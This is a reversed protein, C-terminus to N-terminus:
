HSPPAIDNNALTVNQHWWDYMDFLTERLNDRHQNRSENWEISRLLRERYDAPYDALLRLIVEFAIQDNMETQFLVEFGRFARHATALIRWRNRKSAVLLRIRSLFSIQEIGDIIICDNQRWSRSSRAMCSSATGDSSLRVHHIAPFRDLQHIEDIIAQILTSKGTGHPGVILANRSPSNLFRNTIDTTSDASQFWYSLAGPQIFKTSFPNSKVVIPDGQRTFNSKELSPESTSRSNRSWNREM